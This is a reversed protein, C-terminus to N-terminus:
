SASLSNLVIPNLGADVGRREDFVFCDGHYHATGCKEFYNLIGGELQYVEKFGAQLAVPAAKECRIGGTCFMVVPKNKDLEAMQIREPLQKFQELKLDVANDFSGSEVEYDNRTDLLYFDKGEEIWNKLQEPSLSPAKTEAPNVWDAGPVLCNKIKVLTRKYPQTESLSKKFQMDLFRSDAHLYAAFGNIMEPAGALMINIGELSLVVTGKLNLEILKARIAEQMLELNDLPVFKYTSINVVKM